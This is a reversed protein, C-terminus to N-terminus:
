KAEGRVAMVELRRRFAEFGGRVQESDNRVIVSSLPENANESELIKARPRPGSVRSVQDRLAPNWGEPGTSVKTKKPPPGTEAGEPHGPSLEM